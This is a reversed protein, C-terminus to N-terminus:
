LSQTGPRGLTPDVRCIEGELRLIEAHSNGVERGLRDGLRAGGVAVEGHRESSRLTQDNRPEIAYSGAVALRAARNPYKEVSRWSDKLPLRDLISEPALSPLWARPGPQRGIGGGQWHCM